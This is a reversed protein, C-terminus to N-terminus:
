PSPKTPSEWEPKTAQFVQPRAGLVIASSEASPTVTRALFDRLVWIATVGAWMERQQQVKQSRSQSPGSRTTQSGHRQTFFLQRRRAFSTAVAVPNRM